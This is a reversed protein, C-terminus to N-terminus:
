RRTGAPTLTDKMVAKFKEAPGSLTKPTIVGTQGILLLNDLGLVEMQERDEAQIALHPWVSM